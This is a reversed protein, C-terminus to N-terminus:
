FSSSIYTSSPPSSSYFVSVLGTGCSCVSYCSGVCCDVSGLSGDDFGVCCDVSGVFCDVSGLSGDDFGVCCDVSGLSGDDFTYSSSRWAIISSNLWLILTKSLDLL